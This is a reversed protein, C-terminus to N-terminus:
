KNRKSGVLGGLIMFIALILATIPAGTKQMNVTENAVNVENNPILPKIPIPNEKTITIALPTIDTTNINYTETTISANLLYTGAQNFKGMVFLYRDGKPLNAIIWTITNDTPNYNWIGDGTIQTFNFGVPLYLTVNVNDASDPGKNGLKYTIKVIENVKPNTKNSTVKLYLDAKKNSVNINLPTIEQTYNTDTTISANLLCTGSNNFKGTIYLYPNGVQLDSLIWTVTNNTPNYKWTGDGTIQPFNFGSPLPITVTVNDASDPGKNGLKYTIKVTENVKPNTNNGAITLNIDAVKNITLYASETYNDATATVKVPNYQPTVQGENAYFITSISGDTTNETITHNIGSSEFSGWPVTLTIPGDSLKQTTESGNSLHNLDATITSTKSNQISKPTANVSLVIWPDYAVNTTDNSFFGVVIRGSTFPNLNSGWWNETLNAIDNDGVNVAGYIGTSLFKNYHAINYVENGKDGYFVIDAGFDGVNDKFTCGTVTMNGIANNNIAGGNTGINGTFLSNSITMTSYANNFIAGGNSYKGLMNNIFKCNTITTYIHFGSFRSNAYIAAGSSGTNNQFTCNTITLDGYNLIAGTNNNFTCSDIIANSKVWTAPNLSDGSAYIRIGGGSKGTTLTLYKFSVCAGDLIDFIRNTGSGNIITGTQSQGIISMNKRIQINGENYMGDAIYVTGESTVTGTANKITAKPGNIGSTWTANLGDYSDNGHTNVYISSSNAAATTNIGFSLIAIIGIMLICIGFMKTKNKYNKM